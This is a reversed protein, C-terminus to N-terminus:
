LLVYLIRSGSYTNGYRCVCCINIGPFSDRLFIETVKCRFFMLGLSMLAFVAEHFDLANSNQGIM